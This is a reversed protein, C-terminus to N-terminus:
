KSMEGIEDQWIYQLTPPPRHPSNSFTTNHTQIDPNLIKIGTSSGQKNKDQKRTWNYRTIRNDQQDLIAQKDYSERQIMM